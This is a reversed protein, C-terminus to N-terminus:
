ILWRGGISGSASRYLQHRSPQESERALLYGIVIPIGMVSVVLAYGLLIMGIWTIVRFM